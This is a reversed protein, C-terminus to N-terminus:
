VITPSRYNTHELHLVLEYVKIVQILIFDICYKMPPMQPPPLAFDDIGIMVDTLM